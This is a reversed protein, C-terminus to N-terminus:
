KYWDNSLDSWSLNNEEILKIKKERRWKKFQKERAIAEFVDDYVEYYVLKCCEYKQTFGRKVGQKHELVRRYIDNTVGIYLVRSISSM